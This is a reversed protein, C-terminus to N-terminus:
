KQSRHRWCLQTSDHTCNKCRRPESGSLSVIEICQPAVKRYRRKVKAIYPNSEVNGMFDAWMFMYNSEDSTLDSSFEGEYAIDSFLEPERITEVATELCYRSFSCVVKGDKTIDISTSSCHPVDQFKVHIISSAVAEISDTTVRAINIGKSSLQSYFGQELVISPDELFPAYLEGEFGAITTEQLQNCM